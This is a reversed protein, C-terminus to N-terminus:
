GKPTFPLLCPVPYQELIRQEYQVKVLVKTLLSMKIGKLFVFREQWGVLSGAKSIHRRCYIMLDKLM